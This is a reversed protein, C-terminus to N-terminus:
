EFLSLIWPVIKPYQAADLVFEQGKAVTQLRTFGDATRSWRNLDPHHSLAVKDQAPYFWKPLKWVSRKHQGPETLILTKKIARFNGGGLSIEDKKYILRRPDASLYITNNNDRNGHLHPHRALWPYQKKYHATNNGVRLIQAIQLWGFIVHLDPSNPKYRWIGNNSLEVERFWGFFLFM